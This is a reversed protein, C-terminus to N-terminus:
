SRHSNSRLSGREMDRRTDRNFVHNRGIGHRHPASPFPNHIHHPRRFEHITSRRHIGTHPDGRRYNSRSIYKGTKCYFAFTRSDYWYLMNDGFGFQVASYARRVVEANDSAADDTTYEYRRLEPCGNLFSDLTSYVAGHWGNLKSLHIVRDEGVYIGHHYFYGFVGLTCIHDGAQLNNREIIVCRSSSQGM